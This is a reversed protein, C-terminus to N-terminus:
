SRVAGAAVPELTVINKYQGKLEWQVRVTAGTRKADNAVDAATQSFTGYWEAGIKVGWKTWPKGAGTTGNKESVAEVAGVIVDDPLREEYDGFEGADGSPDDQPEDQMFPPADHAGNGNSETVPEAHVEEAEDESAVVPGFNAEITEAEIDKPAELLGAAVRGEDVRLQRENFIERRRKELDLANLQFLVQHTPYTGSGSRKMQIAFILTGRIGRLRGEVYDAAKDLEAIIRAPNWGSASRFQYRASLGLAPSLPKITGNADSKILCVSLASILRCEKKANIPCIDAAAVDPKGAPNCVIQKTTGDPQRRMAKCGDGTCLPTMGGDWAMFSESFLGPFLWAGGDEESRKASDMILFELETPLTGIPARECDKKALTIAARDFRPDINAMAAYDIESNGTERDLRNVCLLFGPLKKPVKNADKRKAAPLFERGDFGIKILGSAGGSLKDENDRGYPRCNPAVRSMITEGEKM